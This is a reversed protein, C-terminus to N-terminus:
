YDVKLFKMEMFVFFAIVLLLVTIMTNARATDMYSFASKYAEYMLVNTSLRPGGGTLVFQPVFLLSNAITDSVTVFILVRRLLPVTIRWTTNWWNAGDIRAAEYIESNIGQLGALLFIAWYAIGKWSAIVVISPLAQRVSTLFPQPSIWVLGLVGNVVGNNPSLMQGWLICSVALSVPVPLYYISRFTRIGPVKADILLALLLAAFIQLPNVIIDYKLTVWLSTWFTPDDFLIRYQALSVQGKCSFGGLLTTVIPYVKFIVLLLVAPVLLLYPTARRM